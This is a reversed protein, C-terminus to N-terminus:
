TDGLGESFRVLGEAVNEVVPLDRKVLAGMWEEVKETWFLGGMWGGSAATGAGRWGATCRGWLTRTVMIAGEEFTRTAFFAYLAVTLIHLVYGSSPISEASPVPTSLFLSPSDTPAQSILVLLPHHTRYYQEQETDAGAPPPPASPPLALADRLQPQTYAFAAIEVL